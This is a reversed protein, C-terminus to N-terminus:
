FVPRNLQVNIVIRFYQVNFIDIQLSALEKVPNMLM